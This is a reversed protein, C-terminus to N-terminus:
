KKFEINTFVGDTINHVQNTEEDVAEFSFTGSMLNKTKNLETIVVIIVKDTPAETETGNKNLVYKATAIKNPLVNTGLFRDGEKLTNFDQGVLAIVIAATDGKSLDGAALGITYFGNTEDLSGTVFPGKASFDVGDIKATIAGIINQTNDTENPKTGADDTSKKCSVASITALVIFFCFLHTLSKM